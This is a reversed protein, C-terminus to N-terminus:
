IKYRRINEVSGFNPEFSHRKLWKKFINNIEIDLERVQEEEVDYLYEEVDEYENYVCEGIQELAGQVDIKADYQTYEGIYVYELGANLYGFTQKAEEICEDISDYIDSDYFGENEDFSFCYQKNM